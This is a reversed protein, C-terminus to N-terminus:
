IGRSKYYENLEKHPVPPMHRKPKCAHCPRFTADTFLGNEQRHKIMTRASADVWTWDKLYICHLCPVSTEDNIQRMASAETM